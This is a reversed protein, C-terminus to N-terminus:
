VHSWVRKERLRATRLCQGEGGQGHHLLREQQCGSVATLFLFNASDSM